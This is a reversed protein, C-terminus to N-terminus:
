STQQCESTLQSTNNLQDPQKLLKLLLCPLTSQTIGQRGSPLHPLSASGTCQVPLLNAARRHPM